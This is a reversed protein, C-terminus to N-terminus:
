AGFRLSFLNIVLIFQLSFRERVKCNFEKALDIWSKRTAPNLNTNDIVLSKGEKLAAKGEV